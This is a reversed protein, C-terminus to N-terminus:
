DTLTFNVQGVNTPWSVTITVPDSVLSYNNVDDSFAVATLAQTGVPVSKWNLSLPSGIAEGILASNAYLLVQTVSGSGCSAAAQLLINTPVTYTSGGPPATISVSLTPNIAITVQASNTYQGDSAALQLTYIGDTDFSAVANTHSANDFTVNGPGTIKSW